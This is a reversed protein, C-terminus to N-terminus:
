QETKGDTEGEEYEFGKAEIMKAYWKGSDKMVREQTLFDVYNLGYRSYFGSNWEWNDLLSWVYYGRVDFGEEM